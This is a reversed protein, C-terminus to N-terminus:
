VQAASRWRSRSAHNLAKATERTRTTTAPERGSGDRAGAVDNGGAESPHDSGLAARVEEMGGRVRCAAPGRRCRRARV